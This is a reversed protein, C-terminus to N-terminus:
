DYFEFLYKEEFKINNEKLFDIYETRFTKKKHHEPQNMIYKVVNMAQSKSYSFAGFGEQWNFGNLGIDKLFSSSNSKIDRIFDSIKLSPSLSTFLHTHDPMCYIAYTKQKKNSVIGCMYQELRIRYEEIIFNRRNHVAFVFQLYIQSFTNAM